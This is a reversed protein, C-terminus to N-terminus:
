PNTAVSPTEFSDFYPVSQNNTVTYQMGWSIKFRYPIAAGDINSLNIFATSLRSIHFSNAEQQQESYLSNLAMVVFEKQDRAAPGRSIIDVDIHAWMNVSQNAVLGSGTGDFSINNGFPKCSQVSVAIYLGSDIPQNIKQDWVYIHNDDLGLQNQLIDCFLLLATCIKIKGYGFANLSDTVQITDISTQPTLPINGPATYEGSSSDITGGAGGPVITFVYPATGGQAGVSTSLGPSLATVLQQVSISM